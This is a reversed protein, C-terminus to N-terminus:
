NGMGFAQPGEDEEGEDDKSEKKEDKKKEDKKDKRDDKKGEKDDKEQKKDKKKDHKEEKGVKGSKSRLREDRPQGSEDHGGRFKGTKSGEDAASEPKREAVRREPQHDQSSGGESHGRKEAKGPHEAAKRSAM